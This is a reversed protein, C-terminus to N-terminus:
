GRQDAFRNNASRGGYAQRAQAARGISTIESKATDRHQELRQQDREDLQLVESLRTSISEVMDRMQRRQDPNAEETTGRSSLDNLQQQSATFRDILQQRESLLALLADTRNSEILGSQRSALGALSDVISQQDGLVALVRDPWTPPHATMATM